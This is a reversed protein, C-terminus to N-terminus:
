YCDLWEPSGLMFGAVGVVVATRRLLAGVVASGAGALIAWSAAADGLAEQLEEGGVEAIAVGADGIGPRHTVGEGPGLLVAQHLSAPALSGSWRPQPM